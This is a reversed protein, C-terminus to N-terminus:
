ERGPDLEEIDGTGLYAALKAYVIVGPVAGSGGSDGNRCRCPYKFHHFPASAAVSAWETRGNQVV